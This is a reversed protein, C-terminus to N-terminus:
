SPQAVVKFDKTHGSLNAAVITPIDWLSVRRSILETPSVDSADIAAIAHQWTDPRASKGLISVTRIVVDRLPITALEDRLGYLIIRGGPHCAEVAQRLSADSGVADVVLDYGLQEFPDLYVATAGMLRALDAREPRKMYAATHEAGLSRLALIFYFAAPGTGIVAVRRGAIAENAVAGFCCAFPELLAGLEPSWADPIPVANGAPVIVREAWGGDRTFGVEDYATRCFEIRGAICPPCFGCGVIGQIAVHQGLRGADVGLGVGEVRGSTEHGPIVPCRATALSGSVLELDTSCLAAAEVRVLVDGPGPAMPGREVIQLQDPGQWEIARNVNRQTM